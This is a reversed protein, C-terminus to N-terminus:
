IEIGFGFYVYSPEIITYHHNLLLVLNLIEMQIKDRSLFAYQNLFAYM